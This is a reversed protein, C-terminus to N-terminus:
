LAGTEHLSLGGPEIALPNVLTAGLAPLDIEFQDGAQV